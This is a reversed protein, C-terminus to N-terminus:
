AKTAKEEVLKKLTTSAKFKPVAKAPVDVSEGTLPNRGKRAGRQAVSFVGFPSLKIEEGDSLTETAVDISSRIVSDAVKVDVGAATAVAEVFQKRNM